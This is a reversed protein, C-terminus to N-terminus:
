RTADDPLGELGSKLKEEILPIMDEEPELWLSRQWQYRAEDYRGVRWYADGLHDNITPDAPVLSVANELQTVANDFDNLRYYLWGLSDVIYGDRPRLSVAKILMDKAQELKEGRDAWSYGLYNLIQPHDPRLKLARLLDEEAAPWEDMREYAIGRAYYLSWLRDPFGESKDIARGYADAANKWDKNDRFLDALVVLPEIQDPNDKALVELKRIAAESGGIKHEAWAARTEANVGFQSTPPIKRYLELAKGWNRRDEAIEALLSIAVPFDPKLMLAFHAYTSAVGNIKEQGVITASSYLAEAMGEVPNRILPEVPKGADMDTLMQNITPSLPYRELYGEYLNRAADVEGQEMLFIGYSQVLRVARAAPGKMAAEYQSRALEADGSAHALLGLHYSKLVSFGENRDLGDLAAVAGEVDGQGLIVWAMLVPKLFSNFGSPTTKDLMTRAETLDGNRMADIALVLWAADIRNDPDAALEAALELAKDMDGSALAAQFASQKLYEDENQFTLAKNFFGSAAEMDQERLAQRGALYNGELSPPSEM